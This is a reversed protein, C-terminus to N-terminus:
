SYRKFSILKIKLNEIKSEFRKVIREDAVRKKKLISYVHSNKFKHGRTTKYGNENLWNSIRRYGMGFNHKEKILEWLEQQYHSYRIKKLHSATIKVTFSIFVQINPNDLYWRVGDNM